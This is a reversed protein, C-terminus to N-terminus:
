LLAQAQTYRHVGRLHLAQPCRLIGGPARWEGAGQPLFIHLKLVNVVHMRRMQSSRRQFPGRWVARAGAQARLLLVVKLAVVACWPVYAHPPCLADTQEAAERELQDGQPGDACEHLAAADMSSKDACEDVAELMQAPFARALPATHLSPNCCRVCCGDSAAVCNLQAVALLLAVHRLALGWICYGQLGGSAAAGVGLLQRIAAM